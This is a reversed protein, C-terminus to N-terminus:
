IHGHAHLIEIRALDESVARKTRPNPNKIKLAELMKHTTDYGERGVVGLVVRIRKTDPDSAHWQVGKFRLHHGGDPIRVDGRFRRVARVDTEYSTGKVKVGGKRTYGSRDIEAHRLHYKYKERCGHCMDPPPMPLEHEHPM